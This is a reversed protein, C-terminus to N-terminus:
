HYRGSLMSSPSVGWTGAATPSITMGSAQNEIHTVTSTVDSTVTNTVTITVTNTVTSITPTYTQYADGMPSASNSADSSSGPTTSSYSNTVSPSASVSPSPTMTSSAGSKVLMLFLIVALVEKSLM